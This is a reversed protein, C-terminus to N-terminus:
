ASVQALGFKNSTALHLIVYISYNRGFIIMPMMLFKYFIFFSESFFAILCVIQARKSGIFLMDSSFTDVRPLFRVKASESFFLFLLSTDELHFLHLIDTFFFVFRIKKLM